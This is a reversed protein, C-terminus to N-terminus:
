NVHADSCPGDFINPIKSRPQVFWRDIKHFALRDSEKVTLQALQYCSFAEQQHFPFCKLRAKPTGLSEGSDTLLLFYTQQATRFRPQLEWRMKFSAPQDPWYLHYIKLASGCLNLSSIGTFWNSELSVSIKSGGLCKNNQPIFYHWDASLCIRWCRFTCLWM